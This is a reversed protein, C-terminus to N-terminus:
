SGGKGNQSRAAEEDVTNKDDMAPFPLARKAPPM